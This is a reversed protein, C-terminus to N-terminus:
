DSLDITCEAIRLPLIDNIDVEDHAKMTDNIMSSIIEKSFNSTTFNLENGKKRKGSSSIPTKFMATIPYITNILIFKQHIETKSITKQFKLHAILKPLDPNM